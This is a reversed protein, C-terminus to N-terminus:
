VTDVTCRIYFYVRITEISIQNFQTLGQEAFFLSFNNMVAKERRVSSEQKTTNSTKPIPVIEDRFKILASKLPIKIIRVPLKHRYNLELAGKQQAVATAESKTAGRGCSRKQWRGSQDKYRVYWITKLKFVHALTGRRKLLHLLLSVLHPPVLITCSRQAIGPILPSCQSLLLM